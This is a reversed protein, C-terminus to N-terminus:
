LSMYSFLDQRTIIGQIQGNSQKVVPLQRLHMFKFINMVKDINDHLEVSYPREIMYPRLDLRVNPNQQCIVAVDLFNRPISSFDQNVETWHLMTDQLPYKEYDKHDSDDIYSPVDSAEHAPNAEENEVFLEM